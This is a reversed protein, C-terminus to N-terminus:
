SLLDFKNAFVQKNRFGNDDMQLRTQTWRSFSFSCDGVSSMKRINGKEEM